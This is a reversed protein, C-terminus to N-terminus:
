SSVDSDNEKLWLAAILSPTGCIWGMGLWRQFNRGKRQAIVAAVTGIACHLFALAIATPLPPLHTMVTKAEPVPFGM